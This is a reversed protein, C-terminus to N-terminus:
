LFWYKTLGASNFVKTLGWPSTVYDEIFITIVKSLNAQLFDQIEKLVNIAPQL